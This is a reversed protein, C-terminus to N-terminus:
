LDDNNIKNEKAFQQVMKMLESLRAVEACNLPHKTPREIHIYLRHGTNSLEGIKTGRLRVVWYRFYYIAAFDKNIIKHEYFM